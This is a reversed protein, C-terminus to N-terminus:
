GKKKVELKIKPVKGSRFGEAIAENIQKQIQELADPTITTSKLKRLEARLTENEDKLRDLENRMGNIKSSGTRTFDCSMYKQAVEDIDHVDFYNQRSGPLKHGMLAEKTDEDLSSRNLVKRFSKRLVHPWIGEAKLGARRACTKVLHVVTHTDVKENKFKSSKFDYAVLLPDSDKPTWGMSIREDLWERLAQAAEDHLFTYYYNLGYGSIKSDIDTTIKLHVPVKVTPYIQDKVMRWTWNRLCNNRVGSQWLCLIIARNRKVLQRFRGHKTTQLGLAADAIQYVMANDPIIELKIKKATIKPLETRKFKLERDENHFNYFAKAYSILQRAGRQQNRELLPSIALRVIRKAESPELDLFQKPSVLNGVKLLRYVTILAAKRGSASYHQSWMKFYEDKLLFGYEMSPVFRNDVRRPHHWEGYVESKVVESM